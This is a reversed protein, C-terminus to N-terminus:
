YASTPLSVVLDDSQDIARTAAAIQSPWLDVEARPRRLLSAIFLKRLRPWDAAEGGTPLTPVREHFTNAWLDSLLHIAIRHGWWHSVLNLEGCVGLSEHLQGVARDLLQREGREVALLFLAVAGFFVDTLAIALNDFLFGNADREQDAVGELEGLHAEILGAIREDSGVGSVRYELVMTHLATMDRRMLLALVQEVPSFNDDSDVVSLLSYARASLRALHYSAAAMVFHFCRDDDERSGKGVVAELATAAQEFAIRAEAAEGGMERLRLGLELLAYGYSNLDYSLQPSFAPADPPLVGERWILARAQGRAILRNRFGAAVSEQIDDVIAEPTTPM